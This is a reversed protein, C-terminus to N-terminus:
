KFIKRLTSLSKDSIKSRDINHKKLIEDTTVEKLDFWDTPNGFEDFKSISNTKSEIEYLSITKMLNIENVTIDM